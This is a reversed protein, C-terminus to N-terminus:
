DVIPYLEARPPLRNDILDMGGGVACATPSHVSVPDSPHCGPEQELCSAHFGAGSDLRCGGRDHAGGRLAQATTRWGVRVRASATGYDVYAIGATFGM